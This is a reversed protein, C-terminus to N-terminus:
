EVGALRASAGMTMLIFEAETRAQPFSWTRVARGSNFDAMQRHAAASEKWFRVSEMEREATHPVMLAHRRANAARRYSLSAAAHDPNQALTISRM